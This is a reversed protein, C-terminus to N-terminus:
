GAPDQVCLCPLQPDPTLSHSSFGKLHPFCLPDLVLPQQTQQMCHPLIWPSVVLSQSPCPVLTPFPHSDSPNGKLPVKASLQLQLVEQRLSGPHSTHVSPLMTWHHLFFSPESKQPSNPPTPVLHFHHIFAHCPIFPHISLLALLHLITNSFPSLDPTFLIKKKVNM